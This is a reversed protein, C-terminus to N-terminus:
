PLRVGDLGYYKSRGYYYFFDAFLATQVIGAVWSIWDRYHTFAFVKYIWNLVYCARYAGLAAVYQSTLNEIEKHRKMLLSQPFIAVAELYESFAWCVEVFWAGWTSSSWGYNFVLALVACPVALYLWHPFDDQTHDYSTRYPEKYRIMYVVTASVGIYALKMLPLYWELFWDHLKHHRDFFPLLDLYRCCFLLVYLEMTKLSVGQASKSRHLKWLLFVFSAVHCMDGMFQFMTIAM